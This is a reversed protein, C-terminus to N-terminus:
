DTNDPMDPLPPSIPLQPRQKRCRLPNRGLAAAEDLAKSRRAREGRARWCLRAGSMAAAISGITVATNM